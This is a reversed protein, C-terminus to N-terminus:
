TRLGYFTVNPPKVVYDHPPHVDFIHVLSRSARRAFSNNQQYFWNNKQRQPRGQPLTALARDVLLNVKRM